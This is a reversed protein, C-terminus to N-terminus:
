TAIRRLRARLRVNESTLGEICNLRRQVKGALHDIAQRQSEFNAEWRVERENFNTQLTDLAKRRKEADITAKELAPKAGDHESQLRSCRSQLTLVAAKLAANNALLRGHTSREDERAKSQLQEVKSNAKALTRELSETELRRGELWSVQAKLTGNEQQCELLQAELKTEADKFLKALQSVKEPIPMSSQELLKFHAALEVERAVRVLVKKLQADL